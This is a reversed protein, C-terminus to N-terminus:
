AGEDQIRDRGNVSAFAEARRVLDGGLGAGRRKPDVAVLHISAESESIWRVQVCGLLEGAAFLGFHFVEHTWADPHDPDYVLHPLFREFLETRRLQHYANWEADTCPRRLVPRRASTPPWLVEFREFM